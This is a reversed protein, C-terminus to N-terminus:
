PEKKLLENFNTNPYLFAKEIYECAQVIGIAQHMAAINQQAAAELGQKKNINEDKFHKIRKHIVTAQEDEFGYLTWGKCIDSQDPIYVPIGMGRALGVFYEVSPRQSAYEEDNAMNIGYLHIEKFGLDIALAIQWSITNTFYNGYKQVIYDKPFPISNPIDDFHRQMLIPIKSNRLWNLHEQKVKDREKEEIEKRGHLEFLLDIRRNLLHFENCAWIEFDMDAFPALPWTPAFGVIAVKEKQRAIRFTVQHDPPGQMVAIAPIITEAPAPQAEITVPKLKRPARRKVKPKDEVPLIETTNLTETTDLEAIRM